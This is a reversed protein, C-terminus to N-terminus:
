FSFIKRTKMPTNLKRPPLGSNVCTKGWEQKGKRSKKSCTVCKQLDRQASKISVYQLDKCVKEKTTAYQYAKSFAHGFCTGQFIEELGLM